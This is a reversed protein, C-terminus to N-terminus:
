IVHLRNPKKQSGKILDKMFVPLYLVFGVTFPDM